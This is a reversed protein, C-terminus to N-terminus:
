GRQRRGIIEPDLSLGRAGVGDKGAFGVTTDDLIVEVAGADSANLKLGAVNPVRYTDGADLDRDIIVRNRTGQVVIRIARHARLIIRANRNEVGYRKGLPLPARSLVGPEASIDATQMLTAGLATVVASPPPATAVPQTPRIDPLPRRVPIPPDSPAADATMLPELESLALAQVDIAPVLDPEPLLALETSVARRPVPPIGEKTLGAEIMLRAPVPMVPQPVPRQTSALIYYGSYGLVAIMLAPILSRSFKRQPQSFLRDASTEGEEAVDTKAAPRAPKPLPAIPPSPAREAMEVRLRAVCDEPDLGLYAAYSRVFGIAYVRGPLAEFRGSEIAILHHPPIKTDQWVDMLVKGSRRRAKSLDQGVGELAVGSDSSIKRPEVVPRDPKDGGDSALRIVRAMGEGTAM